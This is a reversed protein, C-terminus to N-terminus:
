LSGSREVIPAIVVEVGADRYSQVLEPDSKEDTVLARVQNITAFATLGINGLKSHDALIILERTRQAVIAKLHIDLVNADTCGEAVTIGKIGMFARDINFEQLVHEAAPGVFCLSTPHFIGGTSIVQLNTRGALEVPLFASHTVLILPIDPIAQALYLCTTSEDIFLVLDKSIFRLAAQAIARKEDAAVERRLYFSLERKDVERASAQLLQVGGHLHEVMGQAQLADIDRRITLESVNLQESLNHVSLV